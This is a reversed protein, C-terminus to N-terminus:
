ITEPEAPEAETFDREYKYGLTEPQKSLQFEKYDESEPLYEMFHSYIKDTAKHHYQIDLIPAEM